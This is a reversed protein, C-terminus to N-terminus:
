FVGFSQFKANKFYSPQLFKLQFKPILKANVQCYRIIKDYITNKFIQCKKDAFHMANPIKLWVYNAVRHAPPIRRHIFYRLSVNLMFM